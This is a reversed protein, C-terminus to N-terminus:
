LEKLALKRVLEVDGEQIVQEPTRGGLKAFKRWFWSNFYSPQYEKLKATAEPGLLELYNNKNDVKEFKKKLREYVELENADRQKEQDRRRKRDAKHRNSEAKRQAKERNLRAKQEKDTELRVGSIHIDVSQNADYYNGDEHDCNIEFSVPFRHFDSFSWGMSAKSIRDKIEASMTDLDSFSDYDNMSITGLSITTERYGLRMKEKIFAIRACPDTLAKRELLRLKEDM